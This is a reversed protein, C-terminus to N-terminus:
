AAAVRRRSAGRMRAAAAKARSEVESVPRGTTAATMRRIGNRSEPPAMSLPLRAAAQRWERRRLYCVHPGAGPVDRAKCAAAFGGFLEALNRASGHRSGRQGHLRGMGSPRNEQLVEDILFNMANYWSATIM